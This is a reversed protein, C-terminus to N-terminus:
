FRQHLLESIAAAGAMQGSAAAMLVSHMPNAADGAAFVGPVTTKGMADVKYLGLETLECGLREGLSSKLQFPLVPAWFLADRKVSLGDELVVSAKDTLNAIPSEILAIRKQSLQNRFDPTLQSPGNTFLILESSLSAIMPGLHEALKGNAVLGLKLARVEFGHCYPCHFVSRGWRERLGPVAPLQDSIGNALVIRHFKRKSDDSLTAEFESERREITTVSGSYFSISDYKKLESRVQARWEVPSLGDRSPFNNMHAAPANRPRDDDCVLASQGLRGIAMAASLGAAGGGLILVDM